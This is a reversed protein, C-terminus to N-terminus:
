AIRVAHNLFPDGLPIWTGEQRPMRVAFEMPRWVSVVEITDGVRRLVLYHLCNTAAAAGLYGAENNVIRLYAGPRLQERQEEFNV